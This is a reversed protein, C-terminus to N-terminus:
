TRATAPGVPRGIGLLATGPTAGRCALPCGALVAVAALVWLGIALRQDVAGGLGALATWVLLWVVLYLLQWVLLDLGLAAVRRGVGGARVSATGARRAPLLVLLPVLAWGVVAGLTNAILDDVDFTRYRMGFLGWVGTLQTLEFALSLGFAALATTPLRWSRARRLYAGLPVTLLLNSAVYVVTRNTLWAGLGGGVYRVGANADVLWAFPVLNVPAPEVLVEEDPFPMLVVGWMVVFYLGFASHALVRRPATRGERRWLWLTYALWAVGALALYVFARYGAGVSFQGPM